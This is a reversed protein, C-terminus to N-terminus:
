PVLMTLANPVIELTAPLPAAPEGDLETYIPKDSDAAWCVVHTADVIEVDRLRLHQQALAAMAYVFYRAWFRSKFLCLRFRPEFINAGPAVRLWGAYRSTRHAIAFPSRFQQGGVQCTFLPFSYRLGQRVAELGYAAVGLSLKFECALKHVVYADFGIGAVSLFYRRNADPIAPQAAVPWTAQGVAMRHPSWRPLESAARTTELPLGLERALINATGAPLIGVPVDSPIMGNAVENITGDGGCVIVLDVGEKVAARALERATRPETTRALKTTIGADRLIGAADQM